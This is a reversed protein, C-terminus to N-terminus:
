DGEVIKTNAETQLNQRWGEAEVAEAEVAEAEAEVRWFGIKEEEMVVKM